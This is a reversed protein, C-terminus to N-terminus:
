NAKVPNQMTQSQKLAKLIATYITILQQFLNETSLFAFVPAPTPIPTPSLTFTNADSAAIASNNDAISDSKTLYKM